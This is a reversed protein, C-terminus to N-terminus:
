EPASIRSLTRSCTRLVPCAGCEISTVITPARGRSAAWRAAIRSAIAASVPRGSSRTSTLAEVPFRSPITPAPRPMTAWATATRPGSLPPLDHGDPEVVRERALRTREFRELRPRDADVATARRHVSRRVDPVEPREQGRIEEDTVEAVAAIPDAPHHVERVDVVLDDLASGGGAYRDRLKGIAPDGLEPRVGRREA